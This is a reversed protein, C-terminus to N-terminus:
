YCVEYHELVLQLEQCEAPARVTRVELAPGSLRPDAFHESCLWYLKNESRDNGARVHLVRSGVIETFRPNLRSQFLRLLFVSIACYRCNNDFVDAAESAVDEM